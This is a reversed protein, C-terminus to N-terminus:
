VVRGHEPLSWGIAEIWDNAYHKVMVTGYPTCVWTTQRCGPYSSDKKRLLGLETLKRLMKSGRQPHLLTLDGHLYVWALTARQMETLDEATPLYIM